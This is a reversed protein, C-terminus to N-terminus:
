IDFWPLPFKDKCQAAPVKLKGILDTPALSRTRLLQIITWQGQQDNPKCNLVLLPEQVMNNRCHVRRPFDSILQQLWYESTSLPHNVMFFLDLASPESESAPLRLYISSTIKLRHQLPPTSVERGQSNSDSGSCWMWLFMVFFNLKETKKTQRAASTGQTAAPTIGQRSTINQCQNPASQALMMWWKWERPLGQQAKLANPQLHSISWIHKVIALNKASADEREGNVLSKM